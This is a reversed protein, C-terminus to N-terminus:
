RRVVHLRVHARRARQAVASDVVAVRGGAAASTPAQEQAESFLQLPMPALATASVAAPLLRSLVRNQPM